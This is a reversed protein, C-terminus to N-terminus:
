PESCCRFGVDSSVTDPESLDLFDGGQCELSPGSSGSAKSNFSGGRHRCALTQTQTDIVECCDTWESVNGSLDFVGDYPSSKGRCDTKTGVPVTTCGVGPTCGFADNCTGQSYAAGYPFVSTGSQGAVCAAM